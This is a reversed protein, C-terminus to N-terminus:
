VLTSRCVKASWGGLGCERQSQLLLLQFGALQLLYVLLQRLALRPQLRRLRRRGGVRVRQAYVHRRALSGSRGLQAGGLLSCCPQLGLPFLSLLRLASSCAQRHSLRRECNLM